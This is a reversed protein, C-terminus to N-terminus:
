PLGYTGYLAIVDFNASDQILRQARPSRGNAAATPAVLVLSLAAVLLVARQVTIAM